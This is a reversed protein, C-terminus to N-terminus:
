LPQARPQAGQAKPLPQLGDGRAGRRLHPLLPPRGVRRVYQDPHAPPRPQDARVEQERAQPPLRQHGRRRRHEKRRSSRPGRAHASGNTPIATKPWCAGAQWCTQPTFSGPSPSATATACSWGGPTSTPSCSTGNRPTWGWPQASTTAPDKPSSAGISTM